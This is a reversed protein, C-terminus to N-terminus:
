INFIFDAIWNKEFNYCMLTWVIRYFMKTSILSICWKNKVCKSTVLKKYYRFVKARLLFFYIFTSANFYINPTCYKFHMYVDSQLVNPSFKQRYNVNQWRRVKDKKETTCNTSAYIIDDVIFHVIVPNIATLIKEDNRIVIVM